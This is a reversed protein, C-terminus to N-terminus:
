FDVVGLVGARRELDMRRTLALRHADGLDIAVEHGADLPLVLRV